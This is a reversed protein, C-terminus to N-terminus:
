DDAACGKRIKTIGGNFERIEELINGIQTANPPHGLREEAALLWRALQRMAPSSPHGGLPPAKRLIGIDDLWASIYVTGRHFIAALQNITVGARYLDAIAHREPWRLYPKTM